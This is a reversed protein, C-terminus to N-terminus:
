RAKAVQAIMDFVAGFGAFVAPDRLKGCLQECLAAKRLTHNTTTSGNPKKTVKTEFMAEAFVEEPLLNEIGVEVRKNGLNTPISRVHLLGEDLSPKQADNDYLLLVPRGVIGPNARLFNYSSNLADKGSHFNTLKGEEKAGIWAFDVAAMIDERALLEAATTFYRPDTEGELWVLLRSTKESVSAAVEASFARTGRVVTLAHEFESYAEPDVKQGSPLSLFQAQSGLREAIGLVCLPSHCSLVFQVNPFLAILSPIARHQLDIHMHADIEDVICIGAVQQGSTLLKGQDAYRLLTGFVSLLTAQGASLSHLSQLRLTDGIAVGVKAPRNRGIWVFRASDDSVILQLVRNLMALTQKAMMSAAVNGQLQFAAQPQAQEASQEVVLNVDLRSELIVSMIWQTVADLGAEVFLPKSLRDSLKTSLDFVDDRMGSSVLWDPREARSSPFYCYAGSAFIKTAAEKAVTTAKTQQGNEPWNIAPHLPEPLLRRGEEHSLPGNKESFYYTATDDHMSAVSLSSEAGARRTTSGVVRFFSRSNSNQEPLIDAYGSAQSEFIADALISLVNTKGSGNAGLLVLPLPKGHESFPFDVVLREIPGIDKIFLHRFYM